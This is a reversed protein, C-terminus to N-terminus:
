VSGPGARDLPDIGAARAASSSCRSASSSSSSRGNSSPYGGEGSSEQALLPSVGALGSGRSAVALSRSACCLSARPVWDCGRDRACPTPWRFMRIEVNWSSRLPSGCTAIIRPESRSRRGVQRVPSCRWTISTPGSASSRICGTRPARVPRGLEGAFRPDVIEYAFLLMSRFGNGFVQQWRLLSDIDDETAWNEWKHGSFRSGEGGSPFRRGKVDVLLNQFRQSTVIFDMSKLSADALLARRQEDVAVYPTCTGRLYEEFAVDYHNTRKVMFATREKDQLLARGASELKPAM